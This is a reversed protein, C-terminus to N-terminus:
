CRPGIKSHKETYKWWMCKMFERSMRLVVPVRHMKDELPTRDNTMLLSSGSIAREAFSEASLAGIQGDCCGPM